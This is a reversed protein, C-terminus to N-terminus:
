PYKRFQPAVWKLGILNYLDVENQIPIQVGNKTLYGGVSKYGRKVWGTALVKHSYEAPGTRSAYVLGWNDPMAFFLDLVIGQPLMIQMYKPLNKKFFSGKLVPWKRVVQFIGYEFIDGWNKVIAVIEIDKVYPKNRRVSGAIEIKHCYPALQAKVDLAIKLANQHKMKLTQKQKSM